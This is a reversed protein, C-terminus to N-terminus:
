NVVRAAAYIWRLDIYSDQRPRATKLSCRLGHGLRATEVPEEPECSSIASITKRPDESWNPSMPRVNSISGLLYPVSRSVLLYASMM